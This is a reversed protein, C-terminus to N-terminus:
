GGTVLLPVLMEAATLSGHRSRLRAEGPDSPDYFTVPERAAVAVDGLRAAFVPPLPGGFWGEAEAQERTCM